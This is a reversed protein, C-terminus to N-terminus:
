HLKDIGSISKFNWIIDPRPILIKRLELCDQCLDSLYFMWCTQYCKLITIKGFLALYELWKMMNIIWCFEKKINKDTKIPCKNNMRNYGSNPLISFVLIQFVNEFYMKHKYKTNQCPVVFTNSYHIKCHIKRTNQIEWISM